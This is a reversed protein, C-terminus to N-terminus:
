KETIFLFRQNAFTEGGGGNALGSTPKFVVM